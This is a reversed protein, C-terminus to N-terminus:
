QKDTKDAKMDGKPRAKLYVSLDVTLVAKAAVMLYVMQVVWHGDLLCAWCDAKQEDTSHATSHAKLDVKQGTSSDAM